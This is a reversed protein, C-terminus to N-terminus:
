FKITPEGERRKVPWGCAVLVTAGIGFSIFVYFLVMPLDSLTGTIALALGGPLLSFFLIAPIFFLGITLKESLLGREFGLKYFLMHLLLFVILYCVIVAIIMIPTIFLSQM